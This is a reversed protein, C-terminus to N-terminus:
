RLAPQSITPPFRVPRGDDSLQSLVTLAVFSGGIFAFPAAPGNFFGGAFGPSAEDPPLRRGQAVTNADSTLGAACLVGDRQVITVMSNPGMKKNCTPGLAVNAGGQKVIIRDGAALAAGAKIEAFGTGRSLLVSGTASSLTASSAPTCVSKAQIQCDAPAQEAFAVGPAAVAAILAITSLKM